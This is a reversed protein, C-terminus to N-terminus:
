FWGIVRVIWEMPAFIMFLGAAMLPWLPWSPYGIDVVWWDEYDDSYVNHVVPNPWVLVTVTIRTIKHIDM